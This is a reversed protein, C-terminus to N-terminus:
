PYPNSMPAVPVEYPKSPHERFYEAMDDIVEQVLKQMERSKRRSAKACDRCQSALGDPQNRSRYFNAVPHPTSCAHCYKHGPPVPVPIPKYM